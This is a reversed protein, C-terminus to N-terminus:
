DNAATNKQLEKFLKKGELNLEIIETLTEDSVAKGKTDFERVKGFYERIAQPVNEFKNDGTLMRYATATQYTQIEYNAANYKAKKSISTEFVDDAATISSDQICKDLWRILQLLEYVDIPTYMSELEIILALVSYIESYSSLKDWHEFIFKCREGLERMGVNFDNDLTGLIENLKELKENQQEDVLTLYDYRYSRSVTTIFHMMIQKLPRYNAIPNNKLSEVCRALISKITKEDIEKGERICKLIHEAEIRLCYNAPMAADHILENLLETPSFGNRRAGDILLMAVEDPKFIIRQTQMFIVGKM